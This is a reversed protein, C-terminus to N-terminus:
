TKRGYKRPELQKGTALARRIEVLLVRQQSTLEGGIVQEVSDIFQQDKERNVSTRNPNNSM